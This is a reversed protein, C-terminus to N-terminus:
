RHPRILEYIAIMVVFIVLSAPEPVLAAPSLEVYDFATYPEDPAQFDV